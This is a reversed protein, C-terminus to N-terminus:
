NVIYTTWLNDKHASGELEEGSTINTNLTIPMPFSEKYSPLSQEFNWKLKWLCHKVLLQHQNLNRQYKSLILSIKRRLKVKGKQPM